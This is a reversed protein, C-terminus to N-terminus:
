EKEDAAKMMQTVFYFICGFIPIMILPLMWIGLGKKYFVQSLIGVIILGFVWVLILNLVVLMRIGLAYVKPANNENLTVPFNFNWPKIKTALLMLGAYLFVNIGLLSWLTSKNGFGDAVGELNFHTPIIRPINQYMVSLFVAILVIILWGLGILKHDTANPKIDIRPQNKIM